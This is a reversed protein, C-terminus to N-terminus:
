NARVVQNMLERAEQYAATIEQRTAADTGNGKLLLRKGDANLLKEALQLVAGEPTVNFDTM